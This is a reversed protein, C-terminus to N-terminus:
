RQLRALHVTAAGVALLGVILAALAALDVGALGLVSASASTTRLARPYVFTGGVRGAGARDAGAASSSTSVDRGGAPRAGGASLAMPSGSESPAVKSSNLSSGVGSSPAVMSGGASRAAGASPGSGGGAPVNVLTSGIITQEGAGPGGYGSLLTSAASTDVFGFAGLTVALTVM